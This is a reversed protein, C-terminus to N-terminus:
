YTFTVRWLGSIFHFPRSSSARSALYFITLSALQEAPLCSTHLLSLPRARLLTQPCQAPTERWARPKLLFGPALAPFKQALAGRGSAPM